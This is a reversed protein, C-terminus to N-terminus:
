YPFAVVTLATELGTRLDVELDIFMNRKLIDAFNLYLGKEIETSSVTIQGLHPVCCCREM